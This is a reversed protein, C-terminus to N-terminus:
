CWTSLTTTHTHLRRCSWKASRFVAACCCVTLAGTKRTHTDTHTHTDTDTHIHTHIHTHTHTHTHRQTHTDTHRFVPVTVFREREREVERREGGFRVMEIGIEVMDRKLSRLKSLTLQIDPFKEKFSENLAEKLATPTVYHSISVVYSKLSLM